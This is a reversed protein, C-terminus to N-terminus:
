VPLSRGTKRKYAWQYLDLYQRASIKWSFDAAFGNAMLRKWGSKNSRYYNVAEKVTAVLAASNYERFKFGNGKDPYERVDVVTDDLGGTARVVPVTGYKLSFIQNLGCPEYRSPMLFLDSGAEILHSLRIDYRIVCALRDPWRRALKRLTEHYQGTGVGLVALQFNFKMLQEIGEVVLDIGKQEALRTVMGILPIEAGVPLKLESQLAKKCLAKGSLDGPCYNAPLYPDTEPDWNTYDVGNLIGFLKDSNKRIVSELGFGLEESQIEEAYKKSVTNLADAYVIAGKLLNMRGHFELVEPTFFSRDLGTLKMKEAPFIGQYGMNHITFVSATNKLGPDDRYLSGLYVPVLGTQWDHCHLIEPRPRMRRAFEVAVRSFFIFREANDPYDGEPTGYIEDRDYYPAKEVFYATVHDSQAKFLRYTETKDAFSVRRSKGFPKLGYKERNIQRYLPLIVSTKVGLEALALPLSGVVDGLGGTQAYPAMESSTMLINM